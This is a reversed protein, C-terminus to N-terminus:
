ASSSLLCPQASRKRTISEIGYDNYTLLAKPDAERATKYALDIYDDGVLALWPAKRLGDPRGDKPEIGENVVDWSHIRGAFHQMETRIHTMMAQRANMKNIPGPFWKPLQDM